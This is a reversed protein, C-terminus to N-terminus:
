VLCAGPLRSSAREDAQRQKGRVVGSSDRWAYIEFNHGKQPYFDSEFILRCSSMYQNQSVMRELHQQLLDPDNLDREIVNVNNREIVNVNNIAAVYVDSLVGRIKENTHLIIGEYRAEAEHAMSDKTILYVVAMIIAMIVILVAMIRLSLRSAFTRKKM